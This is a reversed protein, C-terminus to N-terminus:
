SSRSTSFGAFIWSITRVPIWGIFFGLLPLSFTYVYEWTTPPPAVFRETIGSLLDNAQTESYGDKILAARIEADAVGRRRLEELAEKVEIPNTIKKKTAIAKQNEEYDHKKQILKTALMFTFVAGIALGIIGTTLSIRRMGEQFNMQPYIGTIHRTEYANRAKGFRIRKSHQM